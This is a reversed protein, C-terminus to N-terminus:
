NAPVPSSVEMPLNLTQSNGGSTSGKGLEDDVKAIAGAWGNIVAMVMSLDQSMLGDFDCPVPDDNDDEVNWSILVESVSVLLDKIQGLNEEDLNQAKEVIDILQGTSVGKARVELGDFKGEFQLNYVTKQPKYGM